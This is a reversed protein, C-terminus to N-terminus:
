GKWKLIEQELKEKAIFNELEKTDAPLGIRVGLGKIEFAAMASAYRASTELDFGKIIGYIFGSAFADGAGTTDSIEVNYVGSEVLKEGDCLRSGRNGLTVAVKKIGWSLVKKIGKITTSEGTLEALEENNLSLYDSNKVLEIAAEKQKKIISISPCAMVQINYKRAIEIAKKIGRVGSESTLSTWALIKCGRIMEESVYQDDILNVAGKYALISRDKGWKTMLIISIGTSDKDTREIFSCDVGRNEMDKLVIDGNIDKGLIGLYRTKLGITALDSAINSASGGPAYHVSKVNIKSSYEIATYKKVIEGEFTEFRMIDAVEMIIDLDASGLAVVDKYTIDSM